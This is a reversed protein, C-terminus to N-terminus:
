DIPPATLRARRAVDRLVAELTARADPALHGFTAADNADAIAALAPVLRAGGGTLAITQFRRDGTGSARVVLRKARLRDVLRTIAGRTVGLRAALVSPAVAGSDYLDRMVVWEATTVGQEALGRAFRHSVHNSVLRLWYGLHSELGSIPVPPETSM